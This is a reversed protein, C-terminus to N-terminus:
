DLLYDRKEKPYLAAKASILWCISNERETITADFIKGEIDIAGKLNEQINEYFSIKKKALDGFIGGSREVNNMQIVQVNLYNSGISNRHKKIVFESPHIENIIIIIEELNEIQISLQRDHYIERRINWLHDARITYNFLSSQVIINGFYYDDRLQGAIIINTPLDKYLIFKQHGEGILDYCIYKGYRQIFHRMHPDQKGSSSEIDCVVGTMRTTKEPLYLDFTDETVVIGFHNGESIAQEDDFYFGPYLIGNYLVTKDFLNSNENVKPVFRLLLETEGFLKAMKMGGIGECIAKSNEFSREEVELPRYIYCKRNTKFGLWNKPVNPCKITSPVQCLVSGVNIEPQGSYFTASRIEIALHAWIKQGSEEKDKPGQIKVQDKVLRGSLWLYNINGDELLTQYGIFFGHVPIGNIVTERPVNSNEDLSDILTYGLEDINEFELDAIHGEILEDLCIRQAITYNREDIRLFRFGYCKAETKVSYWGDPLDPCDLCWVVVIKAEFLKGEVNLTSTSDDIEDGSFVFNKKHIDGFIGSSTEKNIQNVTIDLYKKEDSKRIEITFVTPSPTKIIFRLKKQNLVVVHIIKTNIVDGISWKDNSSLTLNSMPTIIFIKGFHCDDQLQGIIVTKSLSDKFLIYRDNANGSLDYCIYKDENEVFHRMYRDIILHPERYECIAATIEDSYYGYGFVYTNDMIHSFLALESRGEDQQTEISPIVEGNPYYYTGRAEKIYEFYFGVTSTPLINTIEREVKLPLSEVFPIFKSHLETETELNALKFKGTSSCAQRAGEVSRESNNLRKVIYCKRNTKFSYSDAPVKPCKLIAPVQCLVNKVNEFERNIKFMGHAENVILHLDTGRISNDIYETPISLPQNNIWFIIPYHDFEKKFNIYFLSAPLNHLFTTKLILNEKTIQSLKPFFTAYDEFQLDALDGNDFTEQCKKMANEIGSEELNSVKYCKTETKFGIWGKPTQPCHLCQGYSFLNLLIFLLKFLRCM